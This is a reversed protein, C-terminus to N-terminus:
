RGFGSRVGVSGRAFWDGPVKVKKQSTSYIGGDGFQDHTHVTYMVCNPVSNCNVLHFNVHINLMCVTVSVHVHVHVYM